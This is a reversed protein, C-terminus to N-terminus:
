ALMFSEPHLLLFRMLEVLIAALWLAVRRIQDAECEETLM